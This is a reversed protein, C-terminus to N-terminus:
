KPFMRLLRGTSRSEGYKRGTWRCGRKGGRQIVGEEVGDILSGSAEEVSFSSGVVGLAAGTVGFCADDKIGGGVMVRGRRFLVADEASAGEIDVKGGVLRGRCFTTRAGPWEGSSQARRLDEPM